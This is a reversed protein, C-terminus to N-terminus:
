RIWFFNTCQSRLILRRGAGGGESLESRGLISGGAAQAVQACYRLSPVSFLLSTFKIQLYHKVLAASDDYDRTARSVCGSAFPFRSVRVIEFM